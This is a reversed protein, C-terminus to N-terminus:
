KQATFHEKNELTYLALLLELNEDCAYYKRDLDAM